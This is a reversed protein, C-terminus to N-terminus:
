GTPDPPHKRRRITAPSTRPAIETGDARFTRYAGRLGTHRETRHGLREKDRNHHRCRIRVNRQDTPGMLAAWPTNHDLQIGHGTIGCGPHCCTHHEALAAQRASGTYLRHKRGLDIIHGDVPDHIVRQVHGLLLAIFLDNDSVPAGDSTEATRRLLDHSSVPGPRSSTTHNRIANTITDPDCHIIVLPPGTTGTHNSAGTDTRNSNCRHQLADAAARTMIMFADYRRQRDTRPMLAACMLDGHIARGAAWDKDFEAQLYRAHVTDFAAGSVADGDAVIRHATGRRTSTLRRETRATDHDRLTGDPDANRAVRECVTKFQKHPLLSAHEILEAILDPMDALVPRVRTNGHLASLETIQPMGFHGDALADGIATHDRILHSANVLANAETRSTGLVAVVWCVINRHGDDTFSGSQEVTSIMTLMVATAHRRSAEIDKFAADREGRCLLPFGDLRPDDVLTGM